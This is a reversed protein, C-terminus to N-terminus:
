KHLIINSYTLLRDVVDKTSSDSLRYREILLFEEPTISYLVCSDNDEVLAAKNIGFYNALMEIKDIRPYTKANIWDSFTNHKIGLTDCVDTAKKGSLSLYKKINRSFVEKQEMSIMQASRGYLFDIDVDFLNALAKYSERTPFRKGTEWMSVTSTSVNLYESLYLQSYNNDERLKKLIDKFESM